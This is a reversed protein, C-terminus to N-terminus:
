LADANIDIGVIEFKSPSVGDELLAIAISYPEEGMASPACLIKVNAHSKKVLAVLEQIQKFERYFFTENTTLYDTLEQKTLADSELVSMLASFSYIDRHKCFTMVKNQLISTQRDFTVGTENKFYNAIETVDAYDTEEINERKKQEVIEEKKKKFFSFM